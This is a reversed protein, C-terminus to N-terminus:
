NSYGQSAFFGMVKFYKSRVIIKCVYEVFLSFTWVWPNRTVWVTVYPCVPPMHYQSLGWGMLFIRDSFKLTPLIWVSSECLLYIFYRSQLETCEGLSHIGAFTVTLVMCTLILTSKLNHVWGAQYSYFDDIEPYFGNDSFYFILM